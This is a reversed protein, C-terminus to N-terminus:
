HGATMGVGGAETAAGAYTLRPTSASRRVVEPGGRSRKGSRRLTEVEARPRCVRRPAQSGTAREKTCVLQESPATSEVHAPITLPDDSYAQDSTVDDPKRSRMRRDLEDATVITLACPDEERLSIVAGRLQMFVPGKSQRSGHTFYIGQHSRLIVVDGGKAQAAKSLKALASSSRVPPIRSDQTGEHVRTGADITVTGLREFKCAPAHWVVPVADSRDPEQAAAPTAGAILVVCMFSMGAKM